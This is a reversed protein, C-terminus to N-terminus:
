QMEKIPYMVAPVPLCAHRLLVM